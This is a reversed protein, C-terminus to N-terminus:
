AAKGLGKIHMASGASKIAVSLQCSAARGKLAASSNGKYSTM